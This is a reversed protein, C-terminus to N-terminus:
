LEIDMEQPLRSNRYEIRDQYYEEDDKIQAEQTQIGIIPIEPASSPIPMSENASYPEEQCLKYSMSINCENERYSYCDLVRAAAAHQAYKKKTYWIVEIPVGRNSIEERVEYRNPNGYRGSLFIEGSRPCRFACTHRLLHDKENGDNWFTYSSSTLQMMKFRASYWNNLTLIPSCITNPLLPGDVWKSKLDEECTPPPDDMMSDKENEDRRNRSSRHYRTEHVSYNEWGTVTGFFASSQRSQKDNFLGKKKDTTLLFGPKM